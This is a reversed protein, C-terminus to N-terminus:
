LSISHNIWALDDPQVLVKFLAWSAQKEEWCCRVFLLLEKLIDVVLYSFTSPKLLNRIQDAFCELKVREFFVELEFIVLSEQKSLELNTLRTVTADLFHKEILTIFENASPGECLAHFLSM